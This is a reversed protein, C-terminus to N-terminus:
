IHIYTHKKIKTHIYTYIYIYLSLSLSLSRKKKLALLETKWVITYKELGDSLDAAREVYRM